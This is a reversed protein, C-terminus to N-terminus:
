YNIGHLALIGKKEAKHTDEKPFIKHYYKRAEADDNTVIETRRSPRRLKNRLLHDTESVLEIRRSSVANLNVKIYETKKTIPNTRVFPRLRPHNDVVGLIYGNKIGVDYKGFEIPM